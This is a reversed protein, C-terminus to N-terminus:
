PAVKLSYGTLGRLQYAPTAVQQVTAAYASAEGVNAVGITLITGARIPGTLVFRNATGFPPPQAFLRLGSPASVSTLAAPGSINFLIAADGGSNPTTLNVKLVGPTPSDACALAAGLLVIWALRKM